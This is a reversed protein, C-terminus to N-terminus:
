FAGQSPYLLLEQPTTAVIKKNEAPALNPSASELGQRSSGVPEVSFCSRTDLKTKEQDTVLRGAHVVETGQRDLWRVGWSTPQVNGPVGLIKQMEWM